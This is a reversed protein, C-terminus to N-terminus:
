KANKLADYRAKWGEATKADGAKTYYIWSYYYYLLKDEKSVNDKEVQKQGKKLMAKAEDLKDNNIYSRLLTNNISFISPDNKSIKKAYEQALNGYKVVSDVARQADYMSAINLYVQSIGKNDKVQSLYTIATDAKRRVNVNDNYKAHQTVSYRYAEATAKTDNTMKWYNVSEKMLEAAKYNDKKYDDSVFAANQMSAAAAKHNGAERYFAAALKFYHIGSDPTAKYSDMAKKEWEKATAAKQASDPASALATNTFIVSLVIYGTNKLVSRM